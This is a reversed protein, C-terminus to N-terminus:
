RSPDEAEYGDALREASIVWEEGLDGRVVWEGAQAVLTGELTEIREGARAPRVQVTGVREYRNGELRRHSAEFAAPAVAHARGHKDYVEFDGASGRLVQGDPTRWQWADERRRAWVVGRRRVTRWGAEPDDFSRYGLLALLELSSRVGDRTKRRAEEPLDDWPLLDPHRRRADDRGAGHRWGNEALHASWSEHELRAM